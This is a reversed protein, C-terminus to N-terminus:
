SYALERIDKVKIPYYYYSNMYIGGVGASRM